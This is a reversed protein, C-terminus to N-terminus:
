PEYQGPVPEERPQGGRRSGEGDVLDAEARRQDTIDTHTGVWERIRGGDDHVPVGRVLMNRWAGDHRLLRHETLFSTGAAIAQPWFEAAEARDDPHVSHLWGTGRIEEYPRNTFASWAEQPEAFGGEPPMLWTITASAEILKRFRAESLRLERRSLREAQRRRHAAMAGAAFCGAMALVALTLLIDGRTAQVAQAHDMARQQDNQFRSVSVRVADMADKGVDSATTSKANDSTGQRRLAVIQESVAIKRAVLSPLDDGADGLRKLTALAQPVAALGAHYPQLFEDQGTIVFGREGTEVDKLGSLLREATVIRADGLAISRQLARDSQM